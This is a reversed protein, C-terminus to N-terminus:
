KACGGDAPKAAAAAATVETCHNALGQCSLDQDTLGISVRNDPLTTLIQMGYM